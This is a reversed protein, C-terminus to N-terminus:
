PERPLLLATLEAVLEMRAAAVRDRLERAQPTAQPVFRPAELRPKPSSLMGAGAGRTRERADRRRWCANPKRGRATSSPRRDRESREELERELQRVADLASPATM